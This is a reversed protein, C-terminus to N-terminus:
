KNDSKNNEWQKDKKEADNRDTGLKGMKNDNKEKEESRQKNNNNEM